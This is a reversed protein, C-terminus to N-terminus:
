TPANIMEGGARACASVILVVSDGTVVMVGIIIAVLLLGAVIILAIAGLALTAPEALIIGTMM